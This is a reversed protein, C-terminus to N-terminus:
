MKLKKRCRIPAQKDRCRVFEEVCELSAVTAATDDNWDGV